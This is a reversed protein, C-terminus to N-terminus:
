VQNLRRTLLEVFRHKGQKRAIMLPTDGQKDRSEIDDRTFHHINRELFDYLRKQVTIHLVSWDGNNAVHLSAGKNLLIDACELQYNHHLAFWLPTDGWKNKHELCSYADPAELLRKLIQPGNKGAVMHLPTTRSNDQTFVQAGHKFLVDVLEGHGWEVALFLATKGQKQRDEIDPKYELLKKIMAVHGKSAAKHLPTDGWRSDKQRLLQKGEAQLLCEAVHIHNNEAARYLASCNRKDLFMVDAEQALLSRVLNINDSGAAELLKQGQEENAAKESTKPALRARLNECFTPNQTRNSVDWTTLGEHDQIYLSWGHKDLQCIRELDGKQAARHLPTQTGNWIKRKPPPPQIKLGGKELRTVQDDDPQQINYLDLEAEWAYLRSDPAQNMMQLAVNLTSKLKESGDDVQLQDVWEKVINWNNHFSVDKPRDRAVKPRNRHPNEQRQTRFEPVKKAEWGHVILTALEFIICGMSWVDFARGHGVEARSGDDKWYEPPHYEYTGLGSAGQTESGDALPRLHSRGFDAIKLEEGFVLINTPKLDHHATIEGDKERHLFSLGSVLGYISRYLYARRELRPLKQVWPPPRSFTMWDYLDMEALPFIFHLFTVTYASETTDKTYSALLPVINPHKRKRLTEVERLYLEKDELRDLRQSKLAVTNQTGNAIRIEGLAFLITLRSM